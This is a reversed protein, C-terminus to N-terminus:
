RSPQIRRSRGLVLGPVGGLQSVQMSGQCRLICVGAYKNKHQHLNLPLEGLPASSRFEHRLRHHYFM